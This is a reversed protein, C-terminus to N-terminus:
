VALKGKISGWRAFLAVVPVACFCAIVMVFPLKLGDMYAKLVGELDEGSFNESQESAGIALFSAPDVNPARVPLRELLRNAFGAQGVLVWIAAGVIQCWMIIATVTSIDKREVISQAVMVPIQCVLGVGAGVLLQFGVWEGISSDVDLTYLLGAGITLPLSGILIVPVHHNGM